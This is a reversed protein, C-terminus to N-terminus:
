NNLHLRAGLGTYLLHKGNASKDPTNLHYQVFPGASIQWKGPAQFRYYVGTQVAAMWKNVMSKDKYYVGVTENYQLADTGLLYGVTMGSNWYLKKKGGPNWSFELPIQLYHYANHYVSGQNGSGAYANRATFSQLRENLLAAASDIPQGIRIRNSQYAYQIGFGLSTKKGMERHLGFGVHFAPGAQVDSPSRQMGAATSMPPLAITSQFANAAGTRSSEFVGERLSSIGGGAMISTQWDKHPTPTPRAVLLSDALKRNGEKSASGNIVIDPESVNLPAIIAPLIERSAPDSMESGTENGAILEQKYGTTKPHYDGPTKVGATLKDAAHPGKPLQTIDNGSKSKATIQPIFQPSSQRKKTKGSTAESATPVAASEPNGVLGSEGAQIGSKLMADPANKEGAPIEPKTNGAPKDAYSVYGKRNEQGPGPPSFLWFSLAGAVIAASLFFWALGRKRRRERIQIAVKEWVEPSPQLRLQNAKEQISKEFDRGSM